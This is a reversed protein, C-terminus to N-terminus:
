EANASPKQGYTAGKGHKRNYHKDQLYKLISSAGPNIALTGLAMQAVTELAISNVVSDMANKGWTFPGHNAVLVAPLSTPDVKSFKEVIVRGTNAEYDTKVEDESLPRTVPVTGYFHDAHTTGFCPVGKCAQAFMTAHVSHTHTIGGIRAFHKYLIAHTPTDSSPNMAGEVTKGELDVVVMHEPKLESYSVGSPKIVFLGAERDIGSVNGWTLKVLASRELEINARCVDAKLDELM